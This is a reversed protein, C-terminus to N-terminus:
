DYEYSLVENVYIEKNLFVTELNECVYLENIKKLTSWLNEISIEIRKEYSLLEKLKNINIKKNEEVIEIIFDELKYNTKSNYLYMIEKKKCLLIEKNKSLIEMILEDTLGSQFFLNHNSNIKDKILNYSVIKYENLLKKVDNVFNKIENKSIGTVDYFKEHSILKNDSIKIVDYELLESYFLVSAKRNTFELLEDSYFWTEELIQKKMMEITKNKLIICNYLLNYKSLSFSFSNYCTSPLENYELIKLVENKSIIEKDIVDFVIKIKERYIDNNNLNTTIVGNVLNYKKIKKIFNAQLSSKKFGYNKCLYNLFDNVQIPSLLNILNDIFDDETVDGFIMTPMRSFIIKHKLHSSIKKLFNHCEYEDLINLKNFFQLNNDLFYKSSYYGDAVNLLDNIQNLVNKDDLISEIDFYRNKKNTTSLCFLSRELISLIKRECEFNNSCWDPFQSYYNLKFESLIESVHM